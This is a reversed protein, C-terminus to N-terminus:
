KRKAPIPAVFLDNLLIRRMRGIIKEIEKLIPNTPYYKAYERKLSYVFRLIKGDYTEFYKREWLNIAQKLIEKKSIM